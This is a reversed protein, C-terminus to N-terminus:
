INSFNLFHNATRGGGDSFGNGGGGGGPGGGLVFRVDFFTVGISVALSL